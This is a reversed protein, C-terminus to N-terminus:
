ELDKSQQVNIMALLAPFFVAGMTVVTMAQYIDTVSFTQGATNTITENKAFLANLPNQIYAVVSFIAVQYWHAKTRVIERPTFSTGLHQLIAFVQFYTYTTLYWGMFNSFPVGFYPGGDPWVYGNRITAMVPDGAMDLGTFLFSAILPVYFLGVGSLRRGYYGTLILAVAWFLYATTGYTLMVLIPFGLVKPGFLDTYYYNGFPFGTKISIAEYFMSVLMATVALLLVNKTGITNTGHLVIFAACGMVVVVLGANVNIGTIALTM